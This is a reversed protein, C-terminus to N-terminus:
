GDASFFVTGCTLKKAQELRSAAAGQANRRKEAERRATETDRAANVMDMINGAARPTSPLLQMLCTPPPPLLDSLLDPLLQRPPAPLDELVSPGFTSWTWQSLPLLVPPPQMSSLSESESWSPMRPPLQWFIKIASATEITRIGALVPSPKKALAPNRFGCAELAEGAIMVIEHREIDAKLGKVRKRRIREEKVRVLRCSSTGNLEEM